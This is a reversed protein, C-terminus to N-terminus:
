DSAGVWVQYEDNDIQVTIQIPRCCIYCDEIYTQDVQTYELLLEFDEGCYPCTIPHETMAQM